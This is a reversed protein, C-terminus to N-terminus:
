GAEILHALEDPNGRLRWGRKFMEWAFLTRLEQIATDLERATEIGIEEHVYDVLTNIAAYAARGEPTHEIDSEVSMLALELITNGTRQATTSHSETISSETANSMTIDGQATAKHLHNHTKVDRLYALLADILRQQQAPSLSMFNEDYQALARNHNSTNM